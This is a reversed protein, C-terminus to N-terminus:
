GRPGSAGIKREHAQLADWDAKTVGFAAWLPPIGGLRQRIRRPAVRMSFWEEPTVGGPCWGDHYPDYVFLFGSPAAWTLM